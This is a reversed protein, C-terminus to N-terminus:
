HTTQATGAGTRMSTNAPVKSWGLNSYAGDTLTGRPARTITSGEVPLTVTLLIVMLLLEERSRQNEDASADALTSLNGRVQARESLTM